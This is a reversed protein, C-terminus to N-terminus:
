LMFVRDILAMIRRHLYAGYRKDGHSVVTLHATGFPLKKQNSRKKNSRRDIVVKSFQSKPIQTHRSWFEVSQKVNNDPYLHLRIKLHKVTVGFFVNFWRVTFKIIKPDSSSVKPVPISKGGEGIYIGLGLMRIDRDSLEVIDQKSEKKANEVSEKKLKNKYLGSAIRANGITEKTYKNPIFPINYLWSSLTSKSVPVHKMIYNYSYGAKRLDVAKQKIYQTHM